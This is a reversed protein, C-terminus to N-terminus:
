PILSLTRARALAASRSKVSLKAYLNQLHWKITTLSVGVHTAIQQNSLGADLLRLLELERPTLMVFKAAEPLLIQVSTQTGRVTWSCRVCLDAFFRQEEATAFGIDTLRGQALAAAIPESHRLFPQVIRRPTALRIARSLSRAFNRERQAGGSIRLGLLLLEIQRAPRDTQEAAKLEFQILKEAAKSRGTAILLELEAAAYLDHMQPIRRSESLPDAKRTAGVILGLRAAEDQADQLRGLALFRRILSCSLMQSLRLPYASAIDRLGSLSILEDDRGSWLMVAAALGLGTAEVFGQTRATPLGAQLLQRAEIELGMEVACKAALLALTGGIGGAEALGQRSHELAAVLDPYAAAYDGAHIPALAAYAAVWGDVLASGTQFASERAAQVEHRSELFRFHNAHYGSEICHAATLNFPDDEGQSSALWQSAGLHADHLRDTLSDISTRLIAIHRLLDARPATPQALRQSLRTSHQRAEDYRRSFALAWVFWFEAEPGADFQRAHLQEIWAIFQAVDGRDRVFRAAIRELTEIAEAYAEAQLAYDVAERWYGQKECWAAARTLVQQRRAESLDREGERLLYDRFLGHLRYWQGNRDLPIIFVNRRLLEDLHRQAQADGSAQRGLDLCFSRLLGLCLLFERTKPSFGSLLQRQLLQALNEDSGSFAALASQPRDAGSLIIQAMRAAAPWGETRRAVRGVGEDGLRACLETGLLHAIQADGFSLETPGVQRVLGELVARSLSLPFDRTGSLALHIGPRTHFCLADLLRGLAPDTCCHLNDIFLTLPLPYRNLAEVLADIRRDVPENGTFLAQTPHVRSARGQLLPRLAGILGDVTTDREDLALWICQRGARRLEALLLSMLVTKGYGVPAVIRLLKHRLGGPGVLSDLVAPRLTEFMFTPPDSRGVQREPSSAARNKPRPERM